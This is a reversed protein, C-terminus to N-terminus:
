EVVFQGANRVLYSATKSVGTEASKGTSNAAKGLARTTWETRAENSHDIRRSSFCRLPGPGSAKKKALSGRRACLGFLSLVSGFLLFFALLEEASAGVAAGQATCAAAVRMISRAAAKVQRRAAPVCM